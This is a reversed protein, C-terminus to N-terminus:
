KFCSKKIVDNDEITARQTYIEPYLIPLCDNCVGHSDGHLENDVEKYGM